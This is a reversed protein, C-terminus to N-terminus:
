ALSLIRRYFALEAELARQITEARRFGHGEGAFALYEHLTGQHELAGVMVEAQERPVVPDDLGQLLLVPRHIRAALHIPSRAQYRDTAQPYPGILRDLEHAQFKPARQRFTALDAIGFYSAGCAVQEGAALICLATFGGASAGAVIIRQPDIESAAALCRAAQLCGAVDAV